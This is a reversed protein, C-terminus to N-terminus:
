RSLAPFAAPTPAPRRVRRLGTIISHLWILCVLVLV